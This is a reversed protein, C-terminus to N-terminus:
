QQSHILREVKQIKYNITLNLFIKKNILFSSVRCGSERFIDIGDDFIFGYLITITIRSTTM